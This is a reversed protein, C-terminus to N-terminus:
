PNKANQAYMISAMPAVPFQNPNFTNYFPHTLNTGIPPSQCYQLQQRLQQVQQHLSTDENQQNQDEQKRPRKQSFTSYKQGKYGNNNRWTDRRPLSDLRPLHANRFPGSLVRVLKPDNLNTGSKVKLLQVAHTSCTTLLQWSLWEGCPTKEVDFGMCPAYYITDSNSQLKIGIARTQSENEPSVRCLFKNWLPNQPNQEPWTAMLIFSQLYTEQGITIVDDTDLCLPRNALRIM